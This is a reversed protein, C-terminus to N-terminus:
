GGESAVRTGNPLDLVSGYLPAHPNPDRRRSKNKILGTGTPRAISQLGVSM